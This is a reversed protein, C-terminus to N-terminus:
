DAVATFTNRGTYSGTAQGSPIAIGWYIDDTVASTTATPKALVTELTATTLALTNTLSAYTVNTLGFKEQTVALTSGSCTPFDTCMTEGSIESDLPANGTNTVTTTQNSGGTDAGAAISGYPISATVDHARLINVEITQGTNTATATAVGDTTTAAAVWIDSAFSAGSATPDAVYWLRFACDYEASTDLGGTCTNGTTTAACSIFETYCNSDDASCTTGSSNTAGRFIKASVTDIDSCGNGDSITMSTTAIVFSNEVLTISSGANLTLGSIAPTANQVTVTTTATDAFVIAGSILLAAGLLAASVGRSETITKMFITKFAVGVGKFTGPNM